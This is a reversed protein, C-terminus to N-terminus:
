LLISAALEYAAYCCRVVADPARREQSQTFVRAVADSSASVFDGNPLASVAWVSQAPHPITQVCQDGRWVKVCRCAFTPPNQSVVGISASKTEKTLKPENCSKENRTSFLESHCAHCADALWDSQISHRPALATCPV